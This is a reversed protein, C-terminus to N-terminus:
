LFSGRQSARSPDFTSTRNKRLGIAGWRWFTLKLLQFYLLIFTIQLALRAQWSSCISISGYLSLRLRGGGIKGRGGSANQREMMLSFEVQKQRIQETERKKKEDLIAGLIQKLEAVEKRSKFRKQANM